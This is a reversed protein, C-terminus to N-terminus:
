PDCIGRRPRTTNNGTTVVVVAVDTFL